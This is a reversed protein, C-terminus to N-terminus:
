NGTNISARRTVVNIWATIQVAIGAERGRNIGNALFLLRGCFFRQAPFEWEERNRWIPAASSAGVTPQNWNMIGARVEARFTEWRPRQDSILGAALGYRTRNAEAIAASFDPVWILQLLPGFIEEDEREAVATVDILGPRLLGTGPAILTAGRIALGGRRILSDQAALIGRAAVESIVPGMFPEPSQEPPGVVLSDIAAGLAAVFEDGWAGAPM